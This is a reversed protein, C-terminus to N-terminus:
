DGGEVSVRVSKLIAQEDFALFAHMTPSYFPNYPRANDSLTLRLAPGGACVNEPYIYIDGAEGCHEHGVEYSEVGSEALASKVSELTSGVEVIEALFAEGDEVVYLGRPECAACVLLSLIIPTLRLVSIRSRGTHTM